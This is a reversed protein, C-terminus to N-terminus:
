CDFTRDLLEDARTAFRDAQDVDFSSCGIPHQPSEAAGIHLMERGRFPSGNNATTVVTARKTANGVSAISTRGDPQACRIQLNAIRRAARLARAVTDSAPRRRRAENGVASV